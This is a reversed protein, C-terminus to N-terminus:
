NPIVKGAFEAFYCATLSINTTLNITITASTQTSSGSWGVFCDHASYLSNCRILAQTQVTITHIGPSLIVSLPGDYAVGDITFTLNPLTVNALLILQYGVLVYVTNSQAQSGVSDTVVV